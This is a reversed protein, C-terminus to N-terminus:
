FKFSLQRPRRRLVSTEEADVPASGEYQLPEGICIFYRTEADARTLGQELIEERDDRHLKVIACVGDRCRIFYVGRAASM